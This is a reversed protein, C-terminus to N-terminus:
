TNALTVTLNTTSNFSYMNRHKMYEQQDNGYVKELQFTCNALMENRLMTTQNMIHQPVVAWSPQPNSKFQPTYVILEARSFLAPVYSFSSQSLILVHADWIMAKWADVLPGDLYLQYGRQLFVDWPEYSLSESYIKVVDGPQAYYDLVNLYHQNPTFRTNRMRGWGLMCPMVDGRRIHVVVTRGPTKSHHVQTPYQRQLHRHIQKKVFKLWPRKFYFDRKRYLDTSRLVHDYYQTENPHEFDPCTLDLALVHDLGLWSVLLRTDAAHPTEGCAGAFHYGWHYAYAYGDLLHFVYAGSRDYPSAHIYVSCVSPSLRRDSRLPTQAKPCTNNHLVQPLLQTKNTWYCHKLIDRRSM